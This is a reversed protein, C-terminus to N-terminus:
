ANGILALSHRQLFNAQKHLDLRNEDQALNNKGFRFENLDSKHLRGRSNHKLLVKVRLLLEELNFPKTLYDDAGSKLGKVKDESTDKATLFLIPTEADFMRIHQCIEFGDIEPLMVDLIILDFRESSIRKVAKKGDEAFEVEYGEMDLNMKIVELLNEEDEVLLIKKPTKYEDDM